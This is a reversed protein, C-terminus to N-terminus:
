KNDLKSGIKKLIIREIAEWPLLSKLRITSKVGNGIPYRFRPRKRDSAILAVLKAVDLPNGHKTKGTEIENIIGTLYSKYPSELDIKIKDVISWIKTAYSGPEILVVDIGFPILELRLSESYGELAHKSAVYPSLGPFGIKGSISSMNIIRGYGQSRMIPLIEQTISIVGFFNTEFQLRYEEVSVEESFGGLAFGANNVLVDITPYQLLNSKFEKISKSSTVDLTHITLQQAVNQQKATELLETSKKSDRMTALVHFGNKALEISCLLGFGSSAGTVVAIKNSM